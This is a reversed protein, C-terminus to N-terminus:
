TPRLDMKSTEKISRFPSKSNHKNYENYVRETAKAVQNILSDSKDLELTM